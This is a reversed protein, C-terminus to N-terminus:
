DLHFCLSKPVTPPCPYHFADKLDLVTFHTTTGPILSLLTYPNPVVPHIPTVAANILCLDQVLWYYGNPKKIPLILTNYPSHTPCFLGKTLLESIIPKQGQLHTLSIHYQSQSPFTSPDKLSIVIPEHHSAISPNKFDWVIPDVLTAPLPLSNPAAKPLLAGIVALLSWSSPSSPNTTWPEQPPLHLNLTAQFKTLIDRDLLPTPCNPLV